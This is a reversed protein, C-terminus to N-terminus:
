CCNAILFQTFLNWLFIEIERYIKTNTRQFPSSDYISTNAWQILLEYNKNRRKREREIRRPKLNDTPRTSLSHVSQNWWFDFLVDDNAIWHSRIDSLPSNWFMLSNPTRLAFPSFRPLLSCIDLGSHWGCRYNSWILDFAACDGRREIWHWQM